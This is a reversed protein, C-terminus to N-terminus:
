QKVEDATYERNAYGRAFLKDYIYINLILSYYGPMNPFSNKFRVFIEEETKPLTLSVYKKPSSFFKQPFDPYKQLLENVINPNRNYFFLFERVTKARDGKTKFQFENLVQFDVVEM